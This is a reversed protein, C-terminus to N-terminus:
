FDDEDLELDPENDFVLKYGYWGRRNYPGLDKELREILEKAPPVKDDYESKYWEKFEYKVNSKSIKDTEKGTKEIKENIFRQIYDKDERYRNSSAMVIDCDEVKGKTEKCIEILMSCLIPAWKKFKEKLSSDRKFVNPVGRYREDQPNHVFKSKFDCVRIRRWTGEDQAKIDLLHNTCCVLNFQPKFTMMEQFLHRAQIPDGGTIEKLIGENIRDNKSPENMCAYRLGKLQAVESTASGIGTRKQTVLTIPLTGKLEGLVEGMLDVYVSKGNSGGGTYINFTQNPNTGILNSASHQWMYEKLDEDPFLKTYFQKIEEIIQKQEEDHENLKVYDYGVRKSIYDEPIGDRFENTRFDFIGNEFGLLYPNEDMKEELNKDFFLTSAETMIAGKNGSNKLRSAIANWNAADQSLKKQEEATLESCHRIKDMVAREKDIYLRSLTLSLEKRLGMGGDSEEWRHNWFEWWRGKKISTCRYKDYFLHRALVAVDYDNKNSAFKTNQIYKETSNDHIKKFEAPNDKKCWYRISASTLKKGKERKGIKEWREKLEPIESYSFKDRSLSSLKVWTLFLHRSTTKLAIGVNIWLKYNEYYKEPLAMTYDHIEAIFYANTLMNGLQHDRIQIQKDLEAQNTILHAHEIGYFTDEGISVNVNLNNGNSKPKILESLEDKFDDNLTITEWKMYRLSFKVLREKNTMDSVDLKKIHFDNDPTDKETICRYHHTIDYCEGGPKRSGYMLWNNRGSSVCEDVVDDLTNTIEIDTLINGIEKLIHKRLLLQNSHETILGIIIHIGDKVLKDTESINPKQFVFIDFKEPVKFLKNITESYLEVIDYIHEKTYKREKVSKDFRFDLDVLIQGGKVRNQAETLYEFKKEKITHNYYLKYFTKLENDPIVYSGGWINMNKNGIRTHTYQKGTPCKHRSLFLQLTERKNKVSM